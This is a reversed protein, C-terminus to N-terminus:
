KTYNGCFDSVWKCFYVRACLCMRECWCWRLCCYDILIDQCLSAAGHLHNSVFSSKRILRDLKSFPTHSPPERWLWSFHAVVVFHGLHQQLHYIPTFSHIKKKLHATITFMVHTNTNKYPSSKNGAFEIILSFSISESTRASGRASAEFAM